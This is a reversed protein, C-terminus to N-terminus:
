ATGLYSIESWEGRGGSNVIAIKCEYEEGSELGVNFTTSYNYPATTNATVSVETEKWFGAGLKRYRLVIATTDPRDGSVYNQFEKCNVLITTPPSGAGYSTSQITCVEHTNGGLSTVVNGEIFDFSANWIVPSSSDVTFNFGQFIGLKGYVLADKYDASNINSDLIAIEYYDNLSNPAFVNELWELQEISTSRTTDPSGVQWETGTHNPLGGICNTSEVMTWSVNMTTSNGEIKMLINEDSDEEPLPMPSIPTNKNITISGLTKIEYAVTQRAILFLQYKGAM